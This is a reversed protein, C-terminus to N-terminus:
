SARSSKNRCSKKEEVVKQQDDQAIKKKIASLDIKAKTKKKKTVVTVTRDYGVQIQSVSSRSLSVKGRLKDISQALLDVTESSLESTSDTGIQVKNAKAIDILDKLTLEYKQAFQEITLGM